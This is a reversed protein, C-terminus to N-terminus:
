TGAQEDGPQDAFLAAVAADGLTQSKELAVANHVSATESIHLTAMRSSGSVKIYYTAGAAANWTIQSNPKAIWTLGVQSGQSMNDYLSVQVTRFWEPTTAQVALSGAVTTHVAYWLDGTSVNLGALTVGTAAGLDTGSVPVVHILEWGGTKLPQNPPDYPTTMLNQPNASGLFLGKSTSVMNRIGNNLPNGAGELTLPYPQANGAPFTYVDAGVRINPIGQGALIQEMVDPDGRAQIYSDKLYTSNMDLTGLYLKGGDVQMSWSYINQPNGFGGPGWTAPGTGNPVMSWGGPQTNPDPGPPTYHSLENDGYLLEVPSGNFDPARFVATPRSTRAELDPPNENPYYEQFVSRGARTVQITGWYLYGDFSAMAGGGISNSIVPDTEYKEVNWVKQWLGAQNSSLGSTGLVPSMWIGADAESRYGLQGMLTVNWLTWTSAYLRGQHEILNAAFLDLNGVEEFVFPNRLDGRWRLVAGEGTTSWTRLVGTYLQDNVTVWRRIDGYQFLHKSGLYAGTKANFAFFSTGTLTLDPGALIVVQSNAGASRIGLTWNVLPDNPTVDQLVGTNVNYRHMTPPRWDGLMPKLWSPVGPYQSYKGEGVQLPTNIIRPSGAMQSTVTANGSTGFWINDGATTMGWIYDHNVKPQGAEGPQQDGYKVYPQGFGTYWEDPRAKGVVEFADGAFTSASALVPAASLLERRELYEISLRRGRLLRSRQARAAGGRRARDLQKKMVSTVGLDASDFGATPM